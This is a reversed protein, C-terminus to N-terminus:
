RSALISERWRARRAFRVASRRVRGAGRGTSPEAFPPLAEPSRRATGRLSWASASSRRSALVSAPAASRRSRTSCCSSGGSPRGAALGRNCGAADCIAQTHTAGEAMRGAVNVLAWRADPSLDRGLEVIADALSDLEPGPELELIRELGPDSLTLYDALPKRTGYRADGLDRRLWDIVAFRLRRSLFTTFAFGHSPDYRPALFVCREVLHSILDEHRDGDLHAGM